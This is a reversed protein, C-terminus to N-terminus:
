DQDGQRSENAAIDLVTRLERGLRRLEDPGFLERRATVTLHTRDGASTLGVALDNRAVPLALDVPSLVTDAHEPRPGRLYFKCPQTDARAESDPTLGTTMAQAVLTAVDALVQAAAEAGPTGADIDRLRRQTQFYGIRDPSGDGLARLDVDVYPSVAQGSWAAVGAALHGAIWAFPTVAHERAMPRVRDWLDGGLEARWQPDPDETAGVAPRVTGHPGDTPEEVLERTLSEWFLEESRADWVVHHAVGFVHDVLGSRDVRVALRLVPGTVASMPEGTLAGVVESALQDPGFVAVEGSKATGLSKVLTGDHDVDFTARCEPHRGLVREFARTFGAPGIRLGGTVRAGFACLLRRVPTGAQEEYWLGFEEPTAEVAVM